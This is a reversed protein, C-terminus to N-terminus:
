FPTDEESIKPPSGLLKSFHNYWAEVREEPSNAKLKSTQARHRGSIENILKWAVGHRSSAHAQEAENVLSTLEEEDVIAYADYLEEKKQKYLERSAVNKRDAQLATYAEEVEERLAKVRPDLSKVKKKSKPVPRLCEKAAESTAQVFKDYDSNEADESESLLLQYRNRVEVAYREQMEKNTALDSWIYKTVKTSANPKTSRLRLSVKASVVRHDVQHFSPSFM